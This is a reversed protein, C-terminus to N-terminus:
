TGPRLAALLKAHIGGFGGNSMIVVFDGHRAERAVIDVIAGVDPIFRAHVGSASLTAVLQEPSLREDAPLNSRYVGAILVEDAAVFSEAFAQQFVRRCSSASRPEFVAWIRADAHSARVASLTERVATPHHAFDDLVTVGSASGITELRRKVGGFALLGKRTTEIDLGVDTAVAMAALANKVNHAGAMPIEFVGLPSHAHQV